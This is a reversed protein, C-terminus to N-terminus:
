IWRRVRAKYQRYPDGFRAALHREEAAIVVRDLYVTALAITALMWVSDMIVAVGLCLGILALYGPNRSFRFVGHTILTTAARRTDFPTKARKFGRLVWPMVAISAVVLIPGLTIRMRGPILDIPLVSDLAAGAFIAALFIVPPIVRIGPTENSSSQM